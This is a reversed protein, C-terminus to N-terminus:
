VLELDGALDWNFEGLYILTITSGQKRSKLTEPSTVVVGTETLVEPAIIVQGAGVQRLTVLSGPLPDFDAPISVDVDSGSSVSVYSGLHDTTLDFDAAEARLPIPASTPTGFMLQLLEGETDSVAPDFGNGETDAPPATYDRLVLYVGLGTIQFVDLENYATGPVYEGSWKFAAVPLQYPGMTSGDSLHITLTTGVVEFSTIGVGAPAEFDEIAAVLTRFNEDVEAPTLNSGKEDRYVVVM